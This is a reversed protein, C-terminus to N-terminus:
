SWAGGAEVTLQVADAAFLTMAAEIPVGALDANVSQVVLVPQTIPRALADAEAQTPLRTSIISKTRVYDPVGLRALAATISGGAAFAEAMGALRPCPFALTGIGVPRGRISARTHLVEVESSAAVKLPGGWEGARRREHGRLERDAREGAKAVNESMRTRRQLAYDLVLERVYTGSGQVVRVHGERALAQVAQRLTHRNVEFRTALANENPLRQGPPIRGAVIDSRLAAAIAEWRRPPAAESAPDGDGQRSQPERTKLMIRLNDDVVVFRRM